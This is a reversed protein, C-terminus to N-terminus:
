SEVCTNWSGKLACAREGPAFCTISNSPRPFCRSAPLRSAQQVQDLLDCAKNFRHMLTM